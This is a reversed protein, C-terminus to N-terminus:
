HQITIVKNIDYMTSLYNITSFFLFVLKEKAFSFNNEMTKRISM